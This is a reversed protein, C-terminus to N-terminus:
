RKLLGIPDEGKNLYLVGYLYSATQIWCALSGFNDVIIGSLCVHKIPCNSCSFCMCFKKKPMVTNENYIGTLVMFKLLHRDVPALNTIGFCFIGFAHITKPGVYPLSLLKAKLDNFVKENGVKRMSINSLIEEVKGKIESLQVLQYSLGVLKLDLKTINEENTLKTIKRMWRVTNVHFSTNRSLFVSYFLAKLDWPDIAIGLGSFIQYLENFIEKNRRTLKKAKEEPNFWVGSLLLAEKETCGSFEITEKKKKLKLGSKYGYTKVYINNKIKNFLPFSFSAYLSLNLNFERWTETKGGQM